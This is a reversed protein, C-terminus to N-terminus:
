VIDDCKRTGVAESMLRKHGVRSVEIQSEDFMSEITTSGETKLCSPQQNGVDKRKPKGAIRYTKSASLIDEKEQETLNKWDDIRFAKYGKCFKNRNKLMATAALNGKNLNMRGAFTDLGIISKVEQEPTIIVYEKASRKFLSKMRVDKDDIIFQGSIYYSKKEKSMSDWDSAYFCKYGQSTKTKGVACAHLDRYNLRERESFNKLSVVEKISKSKLEILVWKKASKSLAGSVGSAPFKCGELWMENLVNYATIKGVKNIFRKEYNLADSKNEFESVPILEIIDKLDHKKVFNYLRTKSVSSRHQSTRQKLDSTCGIYIAMQEKFVIKYVIYKKM